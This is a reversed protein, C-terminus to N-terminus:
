ASGGSWAPGARVGSEVWVGGTCHDFCCNRLTGIVGGRRVASAEYQTFPLLRQLLCRRCLVKTM